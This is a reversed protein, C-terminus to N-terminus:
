LLRCGKGPNRKTTMVAWYALSAAEVPAADDGGWGWGGGTGINRRTSSLASRDLAEQGEALHTVRRDMVAQYFMDCASAMDRSTAQRVAKRPVSGAMLEMLAPAGNMGDIAVLAMTKSRARLFDSLWEVGDSLPRCAVLEVHPTGEKPKACAALAVASGDIAFKVGFAVKEGDESKPADGPPVSSKGWAERPMGDGGAGVSWFGLRERAFGDLSSTAMETRTFDETIRIGMAPNTMYALEMLDDDSDPMKEVSWEHWATKPPKEGGVVSKRIRRFVEGSSGPPPPTGLYVMQRNGNPAAALTYMLAELQEDTLEQAEDFVVVDATFGRAAGRSRASFEIQGGNSLVIAEQGNTRRIQVAMEALEPYVDPQEFYSALRLFAKRATRVEHATHLIREGNVAIGYLERIEVVANKGNQRPVGLGCTTATFMDHEDRGLWCDLVTQQWPDPPMGYSRALFGADEGDTYDYGPELRVRPEQSGTRAGGPSSPM